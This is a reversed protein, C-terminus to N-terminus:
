TGRAGRGLEQDREWPRYRLPLPLCPGSDPAGQPQTETKPTQRDKWSGAECTEGEVKREIETERERSLRETDRDGDREGAGLREKERERGSGGWSQRRQPVTEVTEGDIEWSTIPGSAVIKTKQINLKLALKKM